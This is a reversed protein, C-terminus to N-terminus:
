RFSKVCGSNGDGMFMDPGVQEGEEGVGALHKQFAGWPSEMSNASYRSMGHFKMKGYYGDIGSENDFFGNWEAKLGQAVAEFHSRSSASSVTPNQGIPPTADIKIDPSVCEVMHGVADYGRAVVRYKELHAFSGDVSAVLATDSSSNTRSKVSGAFGLYPSTCRNKRDFTSSSPM